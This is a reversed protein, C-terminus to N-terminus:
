AEAYRGIRATLNESKDLKREHGNTCTGEMKEINWDESEGCTPCTAIIELLNV